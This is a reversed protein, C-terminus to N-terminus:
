LLGLREAILGYTTERDAEYCTVGAEKLKRMAVKAQKHKSETNKPNLPDPPGKGSRAAKAQRRSNVSDVCQQLPVDLFYVFLEGKTLENLEITRRTEPTSLLGEFLVDNGALWEIRARQFYTDYDAITDAGGCDTEYHGIVFLNRGDPRKFLTAFPRKRGEVFIDEREPYLAMIRRALHSKGSGSTGRINIVCNM